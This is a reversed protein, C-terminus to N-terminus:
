DGGRVPAITGRVSEIAGQKIRDWDRLQNRSEVSKGILAVAVVVLVGFIM